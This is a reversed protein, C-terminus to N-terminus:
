IFATWAPQCAICNAYYQIIVTTYFIHQFDLFSNSHKNDLITFHAHDTPVKRTQTSVQKFRYLYNIYLLTAFTINELLHSKIRWNKIISGNFQDNVLLLLAVFKIHCLINDSLNKTTFIKLASFENFPNWRFPLPPYVVCTSLHILCAVRKSQPFRYLTQYLYM